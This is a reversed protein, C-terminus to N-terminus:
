EALIENLYDAIEKCEPIYIKLMFNENETKYKEFMSSGSNKSYQVNAIRDCIKIFSANKTVKIGKYYKDNAREERTRGKENTLAFVLEAITKNTVKKVDNYSERADEIIDHLWCASLVNEQEHAEVLHIFKLAVEYVMNLHYEYSFEDYKQNVHAHKEKAYNM